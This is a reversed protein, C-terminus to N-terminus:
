NSFQKAVSVESFHM